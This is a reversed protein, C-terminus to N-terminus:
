STKVFIRTNVKVRAKEKPYAVCTNGTDKKSENRNKKGYKDMFIFQNQETTSLSKYFSYAEPRENLADQFEYSITMNVDPHKGSRDWSGNEKALDIKRYGPAQMRNARILENVRKKNLDSWNSRPKRPTFKRVYTDANVSKIISDIWGYCLATRVANEYDTCPAKSSKKYFLLWLGQKKDHHDKLWSEWQGQTKFHITDM